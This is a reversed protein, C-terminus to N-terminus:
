SLNIGREIFYIRCFARIVTRKASFCSPTLVGKEVFNGESCSDTVLTNKLNILTKVGEQEWIQM